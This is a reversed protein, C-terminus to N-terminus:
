MILGGHPMSQPMGQSARRSDSTFSFSLLTCRLFVQINDADDVGPQGTNIAFTTLQNVEASTLGSGSVTVSRSDTVNVTM